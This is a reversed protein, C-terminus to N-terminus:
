CLDCNRRRKKHICIQSGKCQICDRKLCRHKLCVNKGKCHFCNVQWLGHICIYGPKCKKCSTKWQGHICHLHAYCSQCTKILGRKTIQFEHHKKWIKCVCCMRTAMIQGDLIPYVISSGPVTIDLMPVADCDDEDDSMKDFHHSFEFKGLLEVKEPSLTQKPVFHRFSRILTQKHEFFM